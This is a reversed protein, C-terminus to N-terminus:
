TMDHFVEMDMRGPQQVCVGNNNSVGLAALLRAPETVEPDGSVDSMTATAIMEAALDVLDGLHERREAPDQWDIDPKSGALGTCEVSLDADLHGGMARALRGIMKRILEYTDAVNGAGHVPSSDIIATM